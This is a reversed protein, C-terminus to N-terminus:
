FQSTAVLGLLDHTDNPCRLGRRLLLPDHEPLEPTVVTTNGLTHPTPHETSM